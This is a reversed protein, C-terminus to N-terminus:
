FTTERFQSTSCLNRQAVAITKAVRSHRAHSLSIKSASPSEQGCRATPCDTSCPRGAAAKRAYHKLLGGFSEHCAVQEPRSDAALEPPPLIPV